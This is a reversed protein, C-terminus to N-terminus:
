YNQEALISNFFMGSPDLMRIYIILVTQNLMTTAEDMMLSFPDDSALIFKILKSSMESAIFQLINSCSQHSFLMNGMHLGNQQQLEFLFPNVSFSLHKWGIFYTTRFTRATVEIKAANQAHWLSQSKMTSEEIRKASRLSLEKVCCKHAIGKEHASMKDHLKKSNSATVGSLWEKSVCIRETTSMCKSLSGVQACTNCTLGIIHSNVSKDFFGKAGLWPRASSWSMFQSRTCVSPCLEGKYAGCSSLKMKESSHENQDNEEHLPSGRHADVDNTNDILHLSVYHHERVHGIRLYDSGNDCNNHDFGHLYTEVKGDNLIYISRGLITSIARLMLEDCWENESQKALYDDRDKYHYKLFFGEGVKEPNSRLYEVARKRVGLVDDVVNVSYQKLQDLIAHIACNGDGPVDVVTLHKSSAIQKLEELKGKINFDSTEPM